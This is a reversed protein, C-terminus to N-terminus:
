ARRGFVQAAYWRGDDGRRAAVAMLRYTRSLINERHGATSRMWARVASRGTPYGAAINEAVANLGCDRAIPALLQHDMVERNAMRRANKVAYKMLCHNRRYDRLNHRERRNNSAVFATRSYRAAPSVREAETAAPAAAGTPGATLLGALVAAALGAALTPQRHNRM